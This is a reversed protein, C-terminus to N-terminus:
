AFDGFNSYDGFENETDPEYNDFRTYEAHFTMKIDAVSGNRHKAVYLIAENKLQTRQDETANGRYAPRDVFWVMDADQEISGSERLDSLQPRDRGKEEVRRSLQALTVIPVKLEKALIKLGRSIAGIQVARNEEKGTKMLQLYDIVILDLGQKKQLSRTKSMLEVLGLDANDDIFLSSKMIPQAVQPIKSFEERRIHGSRLSQMNISARACLIRQVLQEAGMELSFFVVKKGFNIAANAALSLAFATKGMGPRGALVILDSPQLGNTLADLETFGTPCGTMGEKRQELARLVDNVVSEASRLTDRVQSDALSFIKEQANGIVEDPVASPDQASRIMLNAEQIIRRLLSKNRILEAHFSANAASAVTEMLHFLYDRGGIIGLKENKELVTALSILDIPISNRYLELISAWILQHREQYFDSPELLSALDTLKEPDQLVGGLFYTEADVAQPATRGSYQYEESNESM